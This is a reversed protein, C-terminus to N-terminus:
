KEDIQELLTALAALLEERSEFTVRRGSNLHEVRGAFAGGCAKSQRTFQVVFAKWAPLTPESGRAGRRVPPGLVHPGTSRRKM